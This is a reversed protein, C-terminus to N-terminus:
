SRLLSLVNQGSANAQALMATAAQSLVQSRALKTSEAAFDADMVQSRSAETNVVMNTLNAIASDLRNSVAGQDARSQNLKALAGDLARIAQAAGRATTLDIAAVSDLSASNASAEFFSTGAVIVSSAVSFSKTSGIEVQGSVFSSTIPVTTDIFLTTHTDVVAGAATGDATLATMKLTTDDVGTDYASIGIDDGNQDTLIIESDNAGMTATVGTLGSADNIANRLNTLDNVDSINVTGISVGNVEFTVTSAASFEGLKAKTVATAEVGTSETASNIQDALSSASQGATTTIAASGAYGSVTIVTGAAIGTDTGGSALSVKTDVSHIGIDTASASDIDLTMVQNADAGIQLQKGTFSGDLLKVGNWTTNNAINNIEAILQTAEAMLNARDSASNTDNASQIALERMRHLMNTTEAHAGESTDVLSKGDAANRIAQSLGMIQSTMKTAIALGAADDGANNIRLGSSLRAMAMEFQDTARAISVQATLAGINTNITSM